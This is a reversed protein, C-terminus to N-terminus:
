PKERARSPTLSTSGQVPASYTSSVSGEVPSGYVPGCSTLALADTLPMTPTIKDGIGDAGSYMATEFGYEHEIEGASQAVIGPLEIISPAAAQPIAASPCDAARM